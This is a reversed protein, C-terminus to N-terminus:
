TQDHRARREQDDQRIRSSRCNGHRWCGEGDDLGEWRALNAPQRYGAAMDSIPVGNARSGPTSGRLSTKLRRRLFRTTSSPLSTLSSIALWNHACNSYRSPSSELASMQIYMLLGPPETVAPKAM